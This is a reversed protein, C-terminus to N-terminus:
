RAAVKLKDNVNKVGDTGKAISVARARAAATAVSGDLTVVGQDVDIDLDSDDFVDWDALYQAYIKTKIWGDAITGGTKAGSERASPWRTGPKAAAITLKDNVAKVGDTAKAIAVARARGMETAVTGTLTVAGGTTDVDIDSGDLADEPLFQSHIKFTIWSDKVVNGPTGSRQQAGATTSQADASVAHLSLGAALAVAAVGVSWRGMHRRM